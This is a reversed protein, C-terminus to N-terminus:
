PELILEIGWYREDSLFFQGMPSPGRHYIGSLRASRSGDRVALGLRVSLQGEWGTRDSNHWDVGGDLTVDNRAWPRVRADAGLRIVVDDSFAPGLQVENELSSRVVLSGGGYVRFEDSGYAVLTELTETTFDVREVGAEILEDGM